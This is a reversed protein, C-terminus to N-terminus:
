RGIPDRAEENTPWRLKRFFDAVGEAAGERRAEAIQDKATLRETHLRDRWHMERFALLATGVATAVGFGLLGFVAPITEM